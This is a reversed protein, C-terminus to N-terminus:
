EAPLRALVTVQGRPDLGLVLGEASAAQTDLLAALVFMHTVWVQFRGRQRVAAAVGDRLAVLAAARTADTGVRPSGLAAWAEARGFALEATEICRCWPSSRVSAPVLGAARLRDGLARAQARGAESLNRQTSCEGLRFGPPDFNGPAQAHRLVLVVGGERLLALAQADPRRAGEDGAGAPLASLAAAPTWGVCGLGGLLLLRREM